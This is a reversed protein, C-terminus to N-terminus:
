GRQSPEEIERMTLWGSQPFLGLLSCVKPNFARKTIPTSQAISLHYAALYLTLLILAKVFFMLIGIELYHSLARRLGLYPLGQM